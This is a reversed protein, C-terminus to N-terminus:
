PIKVGGSPNTRGGALLPQPNDRIIPNLPSDMQLIWLSIVGNNSGFTVRLDKTFFQSIQSITHTNIRFRFVAKNGEQGIKQAINVQPPNNPFITNKYRVEFTIHARNQMNKVVIELTNKTFLNDHLIGQNLTIGHTSPPSPVNIWFSGIDANQVAEQVFTIDSTSPLMRGLSGYLRHVM